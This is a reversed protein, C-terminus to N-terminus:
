YFACCTAPFWAAERVHRRGRGTTPIICTSPETAGTWMGRAL